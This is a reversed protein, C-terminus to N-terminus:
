SRRKKKGKRKKKRGSRSTSSDFLGQIKEFVYGGSKKRSESRYQKSEVGRCVGAEVRRKEILDRELGYVRVGRGDEYFGIILTSSLRRDV